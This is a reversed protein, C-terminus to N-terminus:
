SIVISTRLSVTNPSTHSTIYISKYLLDTM